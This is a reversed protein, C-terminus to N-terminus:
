GTAGSYVLIVSERQLRVCGVMPCMNLAPPILEAKRLILCCSISVCLCSNAHAHGTRQALNARRAPAASAHVLHVFLFPNNLISKDNSGWYSVYKNLSDTINLLLVHLAHTYASDTGCWCDSQAYKM